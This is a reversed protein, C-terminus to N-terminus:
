APNSLAAKSGTPLPRGAVEPTFILTTAGVAGAFMLMYAPKMANGTAKIPSQVVVPITGGFGSVAINYGIPGRRQACRGPFLAPLTAPEISNLCLLTLGVLLVGTFKMRQHGASAAGIVIPRASLRDM